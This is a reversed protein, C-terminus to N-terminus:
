VANPTEQLPAALAGASTDGALHKYVLEASILCLPVGIGPQTTGGVYFLNSLKRSRNGPRFLASQFLTHAPGLATGHWANLEQAFDQPGYLKKYTIRQRLDTIGTMTEIQELYQDAHTAMNEPQQAQNAPWPVLVFVNESGKPTVSADSASPKCIYLSAPHPYDKETFITKFNQEWEKTFLLNHHQLQPLSGSVGLYMLLASPGAVKKKWYSEPYSQYAAPVLQTETFHLDANSIVIDASVKKGSQLTIGTAVGSQTTINQVPSNTHYTVGLKRGIAVLSEVITYMGGQPYWVGEELDLYSMLSFLAPALSPSAGLFVAPYELIQQAHLSSFYRKVYRHLPQLAVRLFMRSHQLTDRNALKRKATFTNYLFYKLALNYMLAGDAIYKELKAGSGPELQEFLKKNAPLDSVVDVPQPKDEFFVRYAPDLRQLTLHQKIDEGLLQYYHEFVQPMLYWSPGTDFRFGKAELLGARGGLQKQSEYVSVSYGAKSLINAVALGGIGGGIVVVKKM